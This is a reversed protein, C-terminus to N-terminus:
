FAYVATRRLTVGELDATTPVDYEALRMLGDRPLYARGPDGLLVRSGAARAAGLWPLMRRALRREYCADGVLVVEAAPPAGALPDRTSCVLDVGNLAANVEAAAAAFPDVDEATAATAGAHVAAIACIGCGSALDLVVRGAVEGPHDLVYRALAQGGAWVFAWFPPEDRGTAEWLGVLEDGLSLTLEPVLPPRELRTHERVFARHDTVRRADGRGPHDHGESCSVGPTDAAFATIM